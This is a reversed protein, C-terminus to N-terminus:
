AGPRGKAATVLQQDRLVFSARQRGSPCCEPDGPRPVHLVLEVVGDSIGRLEAQMAEAGTETLSLRAVPQFAQGDFLYALLHHSPPAGDPRHVLLAVADDVGDGDLDGLQAVEVEFGAASPGALRDLRELDRELAAQLAARDPRTLEEQPRGAPPAEREPAGPESPLRLAADSEPAAPERRVTAGPASRDPAAAVEADCTWGGDILQHVLEHAKDTCFDLRSASRWVLQGQESGAINQWLVRCPLGDGDRAFQVEVRRVLDGRQCRVDQAGGQGAVVSTVAFALVPLAIAPRHAAM